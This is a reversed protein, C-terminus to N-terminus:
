DLYPETTWLTILPALADDSTSPLALKETFRGVIWSKVALEQDHPPSQMLTAISQLQSLMHGLAPLTNRM